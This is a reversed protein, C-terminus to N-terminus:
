EEDSTPTPVVGVTSQGVLNIVNAQALSALRVREVEIGYDALLEGAQKTLARSTTNRDNSLLEDWTKGTAVEILSAAVVEAANDGAEHNEVLYKVHDAVYYTCVGSVIVSRGDKTTVTQPAIEMVQRKIACTLMQTWFPWWIVAGPGFAKVNRGRVFLVGAIYTPCFWIRPFFRLLTAMMQGLIDWPSMM